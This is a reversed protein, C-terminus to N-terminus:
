EAGDLPAYASALLKANILVIRVDYPIFLELTNPEARSAISMILDNARSLMNRADASATISTEWGHTNLATEISKLISLRASLWEPYFREITLGGAFNAQASTSSHPISGEPFFVPNYTTLDTLEFVPHAERPLPDKYDYYNKNVREGVEQYDNALNRASLIIDVHSDDHIIVPFPNEGNSELRMQASIAEMIRFYLHQEGADTEREADRFQPQTFLSESIILGIEGTDSDNYVVRSETGYKQTFVVPKLGASEAMAILGNISDTISLDLITETRLKAEPDEQQTTEIFVQDADLPKRESKEVFGYSLNGDPVGRIIIQDGEIVYGGHEGDSLDNLDHFPVEGLLHGAGDRLQYTLSRDPYSERYSLAEKLSIRGTSDVVTTKPLDSRDHFAITDGNKYVFATEGSVEQNSTNRLKKGERDSLAGLGAAGVFATTILGTVVTRRNERRLLTSSKFNEWKIGRIHQKLDVVKKQLEVITNRDTVVQGRLATNEQSLDRGRARAESLQIRQQEITGSQSTVREGLNAIATRQVGAYREMEGIRDRAYVLEERELPDDIGSGLPRDLPDPSEDLTIIRVPQGDLLPFAPPLVSRDITSVGLAVGAPAELGVVARRNIVTTSPQPESTSSPRALRAAVDVIGGGILGRRTVTRQELAIPM